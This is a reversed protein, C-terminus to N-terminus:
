RRGLVGRRRAGVLATVGVGSLAVVFLFFLAKVIFGVIGIVIWLALLALLVKAVSSM